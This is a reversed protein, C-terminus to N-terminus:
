LLRNWSRKTGKTLQQAADPHFRIVQHTYRVWTWSFLPFFWHELFPAGKRRHMCIFHVCVCVTKSHYRLHYHERFTVTWSWLHKLSPDCAHPQEVKKFLSLLDQSPTCWVHTHTYEGRHTDGEFIKKECVIRHGKLQSHTFAHSDAHHIQMQTQTHTDMCMETHTMQGKETNM